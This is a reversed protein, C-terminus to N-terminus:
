LTERLTSGRTDKLNSSLVSDRTVTHVSTPKDGIHIMEHTKLDGPQIFRKDIHSCEYPKEGTHIMEHRKLFEASTFTRGCEFCM